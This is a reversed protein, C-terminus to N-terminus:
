VHVVQYQINALIGMNALIKMLKLMLFKQAFNCNCNPSLPNFNARHLYSMSHVVSRASKQSENELSQLSCM